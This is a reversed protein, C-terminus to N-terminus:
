SPLGKVGESNREKLRKLQSVDKKNATNALLKFAAYFASDSSFDARNLASLEKDSSFAELCAAACDRSCALSALAVKVSSSSVACVERAVVRLLNSLLDFGQAELHNM